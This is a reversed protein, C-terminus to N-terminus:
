FNKLFVGDCVFTAPGTKYIHNSQEDWAVTLDGGPLHILAQRGAHGLLHAAVLVASAGTGCALTIGSGREWTRMKLEAPGLVQVFHVNTRQPFLPHREIQPGIAALDVADVDAVFIMVHPNGMSVATVRYDRGAVSFPEDVVRDSDPGAMPILSRQLRPEGMDVRVGIVQGQGDLQLEPIITGAKTEVKLVTKTTLGRDYCYRAFCRIGNGCMEGESGDANFMRFRFDHAATTPPLIVILGDSGVGFHRDSVAVSLAPFRQEPVQEAINNLYVYDNGLGEM